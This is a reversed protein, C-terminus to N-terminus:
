WGKCLGERSNNTRRCFNATPFSIDYNRKSIDWTAFLQLRPGNPVGKVHPQLAADEM